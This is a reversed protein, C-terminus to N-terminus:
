VTEGIRERRGRIAQKKASLQYSVVSLQGIIRDAQPESRALGKFFDRPTRRRPESGTRLKVFSRVSPRANIENINKGNMSLCELCESRKEVGQQVKFM